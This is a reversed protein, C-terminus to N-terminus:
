ECTNTEAIRFVTSPDRGQSLYLGLLQQQFNGHGVLILYDGLSLMNMEVLGVFAANKPSNQVVPDFKTVNWGFEKTITSQIYKASDQCFGPTCSDTGYLRGEDFDTCILMDMDPTRYKINEVVKSLQNLTCRLFNTRLKGSNRGKALRETRIHVSIFPRRIHTAGSLYTKASSSVLESHPFPSQTCKQFDSLSHETIIQFRDFNTRVTQAEVHPKTSSNNGNQLRTWKAYNQQSCDFIFCGRWNLFLAFYDETSSFFDDPLFPIFDNTHIPKRHDFCLVKEISVNRGPPSGQINYGNLTREIKNVLGSNEHDRFLRSCDVIPSNQSRFSTRLNKHFERDLNFERPQISNYTQGYILVVKRPVAQLFEEHRMMKVGACEGLVGCVDVLASIPQATSAFQKDISPLLERLGYVRSHVVLPEVLTANWDAAVSSLSLVDYKLASHLQEHYSLAMTFRRGLQRQQGTEPPTSFPPSTSKIATPTKKLQKSYFASNTDQKLSIVYIQAICIIWCVFLMKLVQTQRM